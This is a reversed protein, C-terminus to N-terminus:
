HWEKPFPTSILHLAPVNRRVFPRHDDDVFGFPVASDAIIYRDSVLGAKHLRAELEELQNFLVTTKQILNHIKLTPAGILDLLVLVDIRDLEAPNDDGNDRDEGSVVTAAPTEWLEALHRSGYLSDTHTWEEFAEEGDFFIFQLTIEDTDLEDLEEAVARAVNLLIAVPVASDMAGIFDGGPIVKSEYHAALVLRNAAQPNKTGIINAFSVEGQPTSSTFNDWTVEFGHDELETTILRQADYYGHSGIQRPVLLRSLIEGNSIDLAARGRKAVDALRDLQKDSLTNAFSPNYFHKDRAVFAGAVGICICLCLAICSLIHM